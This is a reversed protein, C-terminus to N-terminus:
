SDDATAADSRDNPTKSAPRGARRYSRLAAQSPRSLDSRPPRKRTHDSHRLRPRGVRCRLRPQEAWPRYGRVRLVPAGSLQRLAGHRDRPIPGLSRHLRIAACCERAGGPRQRLRRELARRENCSSRPWAPHPTSRGGGGTHVSYLRFGTRARGAAHAGRYHQTLVEVDEHRERGDVEYEVRFDPFHVRDDFYPLEHDQAWRRIEEEDRDPRGDSDSRDRNHDQLFEQYERKLDQELVVRRVQVHDHEQRVRAEEERYAAYLHADHEVERPRNVGAYFTQSEGEDRDRRNADLLDRGEATLVVAREHEGLAITRILGEDRLHDLTDHDPGDGRDTGLDQEPVVRFAGVAALMRSDEGNLEYVRDRDIVLERTDGRPLDLDHM